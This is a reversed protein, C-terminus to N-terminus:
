KSLRTIHTEKRQTLFLAAIRKLEEESVKRTIKGSQYLSFLYSVVQAYMNESSIKMLSLRQFAADDLIAKLATRLKLEQERAKRAQNPEDEGM